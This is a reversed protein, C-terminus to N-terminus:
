NQVKAVAVLVDVYGIRHCVCKEVGGYFVEFADAWRLGVHQFFFQAYVGKAVQEGSVGIAIYVFGFEM